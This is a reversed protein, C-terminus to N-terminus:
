SFEVKKLIEADEKTELHIPSESFNTFVSKLMAHNM